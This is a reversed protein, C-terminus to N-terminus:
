KIVMMGQQKAERLPMASNGHSVDKERVNYNIVLEIAGINNLDQCLM